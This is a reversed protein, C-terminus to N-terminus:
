MTQQKDFLSDLAKVAEQQVDPLLHSYTNLTINVNSHGLREQVIKPNVNEQLLLSAHTHRLHHFKFEKSIGALTLVNKFVRSSFHTANYKGGKHNTVVLGQDEWKDGLQNATWELTKKYLKLDKVLSSTIPIKRQASQSKPDQFPQGKISTAVTRKVCLIGNDLDIDAWQLGFIEGLRLGTQLALNIIIYEREGEKKACIVLNKAQEKTLSKVEQKESRPPITDKVPNKTILGAKLAQEFCATLQRRVSKVTENSVGTGKKGGTSLLNSFVRQIDPSKIKLLPVNEFVPRVYCRLCSEYKNYSKVKLNPKVYDELWRTLWEGFTIKNADPLLGAEIQKLWERGANLAEKRGPRDFTKRKVELTVPDTYSFVARWTGPRDRREIVTGENHGRRKEKKDETTNPKRAM